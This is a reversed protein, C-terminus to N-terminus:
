NGEFGFRYAGMPTQREPQKEPQVSVLTIRRDRVTHPKGLELQVTQRWGVGDIRTELVARGAHICRANEPCRSDEILRMPTAVLDRTVWVPQSLPVLTGLSATEYESDVVPSPPMSACSALALAALLQCAKM